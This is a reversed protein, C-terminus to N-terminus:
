GGPAGYTDLVHRAGVLSLFENVGDEVLSARADRFLKEVLVERALGMGGFVQIADSAVEVAIQTCSVKSAIAHALSPLEEGSLGLFVARSLARARETAAFMSFLKTQVLQHETIVKGGQERTKAYDLAQEFAARALGTFIAGMGSNALALVSSLALPYLDPGVLMCHAPIVAGDFHIAGQNLDRQGMKELPPAHEIGPLDLPVLAVGGGASGLEPEVTCFLLAHTAISGNSVWAAKEGTLRWGDGEPVARCAGAAERRHFAETGVGLTDSGHAPETIAWCGIFRAETDAAFPRVVEDVIRENGTLAAISATVEFPMGAVSLAIGLGASGWGLEELVLHRALPDLGSGGLEVPLGAAHNGERYWSRFAEWMPSGAAVAEKASLADLTAGAPRLVETAFRHTARRIEEHEETVQPSLELYTM